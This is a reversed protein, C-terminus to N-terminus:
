GHQGPAVLSNVSYRVVPWGVTLDTSVRFTSNARIRAFFSSRWYCARRSARRRAPTRYAANKVGAHFDRSPDAANTVGAYCDRSPDAANKMDVHFDRSARRRAPTRYATM